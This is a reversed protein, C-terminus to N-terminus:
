HKLGLSYNRWIHSYSSEYFMFASDRCPKLYSYNFYRYLFTNWEVLKTPTKNWNKFTPKKKCPAAYFAVNNWILLSFTTHKLPLFCHSKYILQRCKKNFFYKMLIFTECPPLKFENHFCWVFVFNFLLIIYSTSLFQIHPM